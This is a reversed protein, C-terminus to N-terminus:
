DRTLTRSAGEPFVNTPQYRMVRHCGKHIQEQIRNEVSSNRVLGKLRRSSIARMWATTRREFPWGSDSIRGAFEGYIEVRAYNCDLVLRRWRVPM